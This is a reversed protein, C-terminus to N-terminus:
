TTGSDAPAAAGQQWRAASDDDSGRAKVWHSAGNKDHEKKWFPAQVKLMDILFACAALAERRHDSSVAVLVIQEGLPLFGIRHILTVAKLSWRACAQRVLDQMVAETMGAYHTLSLASVEAEAGSARVQGVFSALAGGGHKQLAALEAALDFDEYQVVIRNPMPM